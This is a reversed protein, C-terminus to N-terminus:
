WGRNMQAGFHDMPDCSTGGITPTKSVVVKNPGVKNKEAPAEISSTKLIRPAGGRGMGSSSLSTQGADTPGAIKIVAVNTAVPMVAGVGGMDGSEGMDAGFPTLTGEEEELGAAKLKSYYRPDESLHDMAIKQALKVDQTHDGEIRTGTALETPDYQM